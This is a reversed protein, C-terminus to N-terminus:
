EGSEFKKSVAKALLAGAASALGVLDGFSLPVYQGTKLCTYAWVGVIVGALLLSFGVVVFMALRTSSLRGADDKLFETVKELM